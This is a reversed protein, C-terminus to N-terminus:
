FPLILNFPAPITKGLDRLPMPTVVAACPGNAVSQETLRKRETLVAAADASPKPAPAAAAPLGIWRMAGITDHGASALPGATGATPDTLIEIAWHSAAVSPPSAELALVGEGVGATGISTTAAPTRFMHVISSRLRGFM